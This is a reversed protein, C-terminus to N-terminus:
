EVSSHIVKTVLGDVGETVEVIQNAPVGTFRQTIGSRPWRVILEDARDRDGLGFYQRLSSQSAYGDGALSAAFRDLYPSHSLASAHPLHPSRM